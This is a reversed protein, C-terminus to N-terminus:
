WRHRGSAHRAMQVRQRSQEATKKMAAFDKSETFDRVVISLGDQRCLALENLPSPFPRNDVKIYAVVQGFYVRYANIGSWREPFPDLAGHTLVGDSEIVPWSSLVVAFTEPIPYSLDTADKAKAEYSGLQVHKYFPHTSVSARWLMAVFFRLLLEQNIEQSQLAVASGLHVAPKFLEHFRTLLVQAAYSDVEGFTKECEECLISKDYVGIPAREPFSNEPNSVLLSTGGGSRMVRFFSEPIAHAKVLKRDQNCLRCQSM